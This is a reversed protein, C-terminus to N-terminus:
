NIKKYLDEAAKLDGKQHHAVAKIYVEKLASNKDDM